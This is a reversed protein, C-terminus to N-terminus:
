GPLAVTLEVEVVFEPRYLRQVQVWSAAPLWGEYAKLRLPQAQILAAMDTTFITEKVVDKLSAGQAKLQRQLRAYVQPLAVEMPGAGVVGSVHLTRGSRLVQCYGIQKEVAENDHFCTAREAVPPTTCAALPAACAILLALRRM